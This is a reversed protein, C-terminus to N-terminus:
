RGSSVSATIYRSAPTNTNGDSYSPNPSGGSSAIALPVGTTVDFTDDSGSTAPSAATSTSGYSGAAIASPM